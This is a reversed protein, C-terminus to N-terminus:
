DIIASINQKSIYIIAPQSKEYNLYKGTIKDHIASTASVYLRGKEDLTLNTIQNDFPLTLIKSNGNRIIQITNKLVYNANLNGDIPELNEKLKITIQNNLHVTAYEKIRNLSTAGQYLSKWSTGNDLSFYQSFSAYIQGSQNKMSKYGLTFISDQKVIFGYFPQNSMKKNVWTKGKDTTQYIAHLTSVTLTDDVNGYVAHAEQEKAIEIRMWNPNSFTTVEDVPTKDKSCSSLVALLVMLKFLKM